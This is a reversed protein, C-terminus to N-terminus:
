RRLLNPALQESRLLSRIIVAEISLGPFKKMGAANDYRAALSSCLKLHPQLSKALTAYDHNHHFNWACVIPYAKGWFEHARQGVRELQEQGFM